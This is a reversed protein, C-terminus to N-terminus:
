APAEASQASGRQKAAVLAEQLREVFPSDLHQYNQKAANASNLTYGTGCHVMQLTTAGTLVNNLVNRLEELLQKENQPPIWCNPAFVMLGPNTESDAFLLSAVVIEAASVFFPPAKTVELTLNAGVTTYRTRIDSDIACLGILSWM